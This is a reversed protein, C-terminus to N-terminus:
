NLSVSQAAGVEGVDFAADAFAPPGFQAPANNSFGFPESPIGFLNTALDGDGNRDHFLKVAYRGPAVDRFCLVPNEDEVPVGATAVADGNWGSESYLGGLIAGQVARVNHVRVAVTCVPADEAYAPLSSPLTAAALAVTAISVLARSKM